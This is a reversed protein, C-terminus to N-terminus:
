IVYNAFNNGKCVICTNKLKKCADKGRVNETFLRLLLNSKHEFNLCRQAELISQM